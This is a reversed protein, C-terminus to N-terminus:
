SPPEPCKVFYCQKVVKTQDPVEKREISEDVDLEVDVDGM